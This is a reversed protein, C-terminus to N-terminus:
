LEGPWGGGHRGTLESGEGGSELVASLDLDQVGRRGYFSDGRDGVCGELLREGDQV